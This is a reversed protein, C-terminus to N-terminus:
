SQKIWAGEETVITSAFVARDYVWGDLCPETHGWTGNPLTSNWPGLPGELPPHTFRRCRDPEGNPGLPLASALSSANPAPMCHHAPTAATFIQLLNHSAMFLIPVSLLLVHLVQFRGMSGVRELLESFSM